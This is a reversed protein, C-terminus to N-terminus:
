FAAWHATGAPRFRSVNEQSPSPKSGFGAAIPDIGIEWIVNLFIIAALANSFLSLWLLHMWIESGGPDVFGVIGPGLNAVLTCAVISLSVAQGRVSRRVSAQLLAICPGFWAEGILNLLCYFIMSHYWNASLLVGCTLPLSVAAGFFGIWCPARIDVRRWISDITFGLLASLSAAAPVALVSWNVFGESSYGELGQRAFYIPLFAGLSTAALLKASAALILLRAVRSKEVVEEYVVYLPCPATWETRPPEPVTCALLPVLAIGILGALLVAWRWGFHSAFTISLASAGVGLQSGGVALVAVALCQSSATFYDAALSLLAPMGIAQGVALMARVLLLFWFDHASAQLATAVSWLMLCLCLTSVRPQRDCIHGAPISAVAFAAAFGFGILVGYDWTHLCAGDSMSYFNAASEKRPLLPDSPAISDNIQGAADSQNGTGLIARTQMMRRHRRSTVITTARCLQCADHVGPRTGCLPEGLPQGVCAAECGPVTVTILYSPLSRTGTNSICIILLLALVYIQKWVPQEEPEFAM